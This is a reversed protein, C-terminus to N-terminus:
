PHPYNRVWIFGGNMKVAGLAVTLKQIDRPKRHASKRQTMDGFAGATKANIVIFQLLTVRLV